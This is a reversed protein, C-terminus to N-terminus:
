LVFEVYFQACQIIKFFSEETVHTPVNLICSYILSIAFNRIWSAMKLTPAVIIHSFLDQLIIEKAYALCTYKHM